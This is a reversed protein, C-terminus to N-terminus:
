KNLGMVFKRVTPMVLPFIVSILQINKRVMRSRREEGSLAMTINNIRQVTKNLYSLRQSNFEELKDQHILRSLIHADEIGLNMGRAGVPSHLHAADGILGVRNGTLTAAVKHHIKFESQWILHSVSTKKPLYEILNKLSGALRWIGNKFPIMIMGGEPYLLVHGENPHLETELEVDLIEWDEEYRFGRYKIDAMQRVRSGGGDAGIILDSLFETSSGGKQIVSLVKENVVKYSELTSEYEVVINRKLVEDLLIEESEKQPQILMFPYKHNVKSFDNRFIHQSGKLINIGEMKKGNSLFRDTIGISDFIELSRPNIALAKSYSSIKKKKDIIRPQYGLESLFIAMSLGSPGAGSILIEKSISM